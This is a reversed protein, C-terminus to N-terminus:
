KGGGKRRRKKENYPCDKCAIRVLGMDDAIGYGFREDAIDAAINPCDSTICHENIDDYGM